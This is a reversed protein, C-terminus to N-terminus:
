GSKSKTETEAIKKLKVVLPLLRDAYDEIQSVNYRLDILNPKLGGQSHFQLRVIGDIIDMSMVPHGVADRNKYLLFTKVIEKDTLFQNASQNDNATVIFEKLDGPIFVKDASKAWPTVVDQITEIDARIKSRTRETFNLTLNCSTEAKLYGFNTSEDWLGQDKIHEYVFEHGEHMFRIRCTGDAEPDGELDVQLFKAMEKLYKKEGGAVTSQGKIWFVSAVVLAIIILLIINHM